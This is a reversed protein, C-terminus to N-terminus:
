MSASGLVGRSATWIIIVMTDDNIHGFSMGLSCIVLAFESIQSLNITSLAGLGAVGLHAARERPCAWSSHSELLM